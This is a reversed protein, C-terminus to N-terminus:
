VVKIVHVCRGKREQLVAQFRYIPRAPHVKGTVTYLNELL